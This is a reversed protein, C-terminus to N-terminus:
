LLSSQCSKLALFPHSFPFPSLGLFLGASIFLDELPPETPRDIYGDLVGAARCTQALQVVLSALDECQGIGNVM